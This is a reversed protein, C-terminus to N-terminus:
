TPSVSSYGKLFSTDQCDPFAKMCNGWANSGAEILGAVESPFAVALGFAVATQANELQGARSGWIGGPWVWVPTGAEQGEQHYDKHSDIRETRSM